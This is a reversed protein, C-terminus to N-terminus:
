DKPPVFKPAPQPHFSPAPHGYKLDHLLACGCLLSTIALIVLARIM